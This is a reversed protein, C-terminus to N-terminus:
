TFVRSPSTARSVPMSPRHQRGSESTAPHVASHDDRTLRRPPRFVVVPRVKPRNADFVRRDGEHKTPSSSGYRREASPRVISQIAMPHWTMLASLSSTVAVYNATLRWRSIENSARWRCSPESRGFMAQGCPPKAGVLKAKNWPLRALLRRPLMHM